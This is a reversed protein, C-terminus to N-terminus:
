ELDERVITAIRGDADRVFRVNGALAGVAALIRLDVADDTFAPSEAIVETEDVLRALEEPTM